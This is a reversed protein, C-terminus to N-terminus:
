SHEVIFYTALATGRIFQQGVMYYSTSLRYTTSLDVLQYYLYKVYPRKLIMHISSHPHKCILADTTWRNPYRGELCTVRTRSGASAYCHKQLTRYTHIDTCVDINTHKHTHAATLASHESFM